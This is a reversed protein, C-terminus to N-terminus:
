EILLIPLAYKYPYHHALEVARETLELVDMGM